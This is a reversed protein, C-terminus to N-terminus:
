RWTSCCSAVERLRTLETRLSAPQHPVHVSRVQRPAPCPPRQSARRVRASPAPSACVERGVRSIRSDCFARRPDRRPARTNSNPQPIRRSERSERVQQVMSRRIEGPKERSTGQASSAHAGGPSTLRVRLASEAAIARAPASTLGTSSTSRLANASSASQGAMRPTFTGDVVSSVREM